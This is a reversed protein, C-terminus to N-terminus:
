DGKEKEKKVEEIEQNVEKLEAELDEKYEELMRIYDDRRPFHGPGGVWFGFPPIGMTFRRWRRFQRYMM